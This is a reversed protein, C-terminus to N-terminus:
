TAAPPAASVLRLLAKERHTPLGHHTRPGPTEVMVPRGGRDAVVVGIGLVRAERRFNPVHPGMLATDRVYVARAAYGALLSADTLLSLRPRGILLAGELHTLTEGDLRVEDVVAFFTLGGFRVPGVVRGRWRLARAADHVHNPLVRMPRGLGM